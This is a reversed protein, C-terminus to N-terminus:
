LLRHFIIPLDAFPQQPALEWLCGDALFLGLADTEVASAWRFNRDISSIV